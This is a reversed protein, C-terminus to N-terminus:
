DYKLTEIVHEDKSEKLKYYPFKNDKRKEFKTMKLAIWLSTLLELVKIIVVLKSTDQDMLYLLVVFEFFVDTYYKRISIGEISKLNNWFSINNKISLFSFLTHFVNVTFM